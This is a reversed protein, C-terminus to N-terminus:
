YAEVYADRKVSQENGAPDQAVLLLRNVGEMRLKVVAHFSGDEFVDVKNNDIWLKADPDTLGNVIVMGGVQVFETVELRPPERDTLDRVRQSAIKFGRTTSARGETDSGDIAAVRWHYNGPELQGITASTGTRVADYRTSTFMEKDSIMLRYNEINPLPEWSLTLQAEAPNEFVFVRQDSPLLLRPVGPLSQKAALMGMADVRIREGGHVTTKRGSTAVGFEGTYADFVTDRKDKDHAMRFEGDDETRANVTETSVEHYSGSVNRKKTSSRIEGWTLKEQVRRVKTVPDEYLDRIQLLTGPELSTITGDFYLVVASGNSSTKVQDGIQLSMRKNAAKWSFGGAQKVRVDGEIKSFSVLKQEAEGSAGAIVRQSLKESSMAAIRAASYATQMFESKAVELQIRANGAIEALDEDVALEAAQAFRQAARDIAVRAEDKPVMHRSWYWWSGGGVSVVLIVALIIISRYTVNVWEINLGKARGAM